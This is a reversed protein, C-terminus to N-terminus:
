KKPKEAKEIKEAKQPILALGPWGPIIRKGTEDRRIIRNARFIKPNAAVLAGFDADPYDFGITRLYKFSHGSTKLSAIVRTRVAPETIKAIAPNLNVRLAPTGPLASPGSKQSRAARSASFATPHAKIFADFEADTFHFGLTRLQQYTRDGATLAAILKKELEAETVKAPEDPQPAGEKKGASALLEAADPKGDNDFDEAGDPTGNHDSDASDIKLGLALEVWNPVGDGDPDGDADVVQIRKLAPAEGFAEGQTPAVRWAFTYSGPRDPASVIFSFEAEAWTAAEAAPGPSQTTWNWKAGARAPVLRYTDPSWKETGINRFTVAARYSRGTAMIPPVEQDLFVAGRGNVPQLDFQATAIPGATGDSLFARAKVTAPSDLQISADADFEMDRETPDAGDTTVHITAGRTPCQLHIALPAAAPGGNPIILVPAVNQAQTSALTALLAAALFPQALGPLCNM